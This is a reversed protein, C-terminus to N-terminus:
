YTCSTRRKQLNTASIVDYAWKECGTYTTGRNRAWLQWWRMAVRKEPPAPTYHLKVIDAHSLLTFKAKYQSIIFSARRTTSAQRKNINIVIHSAQWRNRIIEIYIYINVLEHSNADHTTWHWVLAVRTTEWMTNVYYCIILKRTYIGIYITTAIDRMTRDYIYIYYNVCHTACITLSKM